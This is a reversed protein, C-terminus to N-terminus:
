DEFIEYREIDIRTVLIRELDAILDQVSHYRLDPEKELCRQVISDYPLAAHNKRSPAPASDSLIQSSVRAIDDGEFPLVGTLLEYFVVGLQYIDTRPDTDGFRDPSIQEPAAYSLSFGTITPLSGGGMVKSMGWDAIKPVADPTMLINHPKIDRHIIGRSHAYRLGTAIDRVIRAADDAPLPKSFDALSREIYEMEVYPVPLINVGHIRVINEHALDEWVKIEKMFCKGATENYHVPIKLAVTQGTETNLARFVRAIGGMGILQPESYRDLLEPPFLAPITPIRPSVNTADSPYAITEGESSYPKLLRSEWRSTLGGLLTCAFIIMIPFPFDPISSVMTLAAIFAGLLSVLLHGSLTRRLPRALMTALFLVLGSALLYGSVPILIAIFPPIPNHIMDGRYVLLLAAILGAVLVGYSVLALAKERAPLLSPPGPKIVLDAMLPVICLGGILLLLTLASMGGVLPPFPLGPTTNGTEPMTEGPTVGTTEPYRTEHSTAPIVPSTTGETPSGTAVTTDVTVTTVMTTPPVTTVTTTPPVTTTTTTPSVTTVTTTPSATTVTTTPPVTTATTTPPVTTATTTPPITTQTPTPTTTALVMIVRPIVTTEGSRVQVQSSWPSYFQKWLAVTRMGVPVNDIILPAQSQTTGRSVGDILVTAGFPDSEISISGTLRTFRATISNDFNVNRFTFIPVPGVSRGNVLVDDIRYGDEPIIAFSQSGDLIVLVEGSPAISGGPGASATIIFYGSAAAPGALIGASIILLVPLLASTLKM